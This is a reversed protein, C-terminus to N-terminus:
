GEKNQWQAWPCVDAQELSVHSTHAASAWVLTVRGLLAHGWASHLRM